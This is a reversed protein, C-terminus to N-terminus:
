KKKSAIYRQRVREDILQDATVNEAIGAARIRKLLDAVCHARQQESVASIRATPSVKLENYQRVFTEPEYLADACSPSFANKSEIIRAFQADSAKLLPNEVRACGPLVAICLAAAASLLIHRPEASRASLNRHLPRDNQPM